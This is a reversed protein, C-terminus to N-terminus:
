KYITLTFDQENIIILNKFKSKILRFLSNIILKNFCLLSNEDITLYILYTDSTQKFYFNSFELKISKLLQDLYNFNTLELKEIKSKVLEQGKFFLYKIYKSKKSKVLEESTIKKSKNM